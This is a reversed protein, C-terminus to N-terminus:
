EDIVLMRAPSAALAPQEIQSFERARPSVKQTSGAASLIPMRLKEVVKRDEDISAIGNGKQAEEIAWELLTLANNFLEKKTSIGGVEMLNDLLEVQQPVLDIQWRVTDKMKKEFKIPM